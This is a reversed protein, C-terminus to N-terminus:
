DAKFTTINALSLGKDKDFYIEIHEGQIIDGFFGYNGASFRKVMMKKKGKRFFLKEKTQYYPKLIKMNCIYYYLGSTSVGSSFLEKRTLGGM